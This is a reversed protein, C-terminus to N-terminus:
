LSRSETKALNISMFHCVRKRQIFLSLNTEIDFQYMPVSLRILERKQKVCKCSLQMSTCALTISVEQETFLIALRMRFIPRCMILNIYIKNWARNKM